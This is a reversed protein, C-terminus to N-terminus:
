GKKLTNIETQMTDIKASLEQVAKILPIVFKAYQLRRIGSINEYGSFTTGLEDAAQKVGQASLGDIVTDNLINSPNLVNFDAPWDETAKDKYKVPRLKNIFTLGLDTNTINRKIREDSTASWTNGSSSFDLSASNTEDGIYAHYNAAGLVGKGIVICRTRSSLTVGSFNGICINGNGTLLDQGTSHTTFSAGAGLGLLLNGSGSTVNYGTRYGIATNFSGTTGTGTDTADELSETGIAINQKAFGSDGYKNGANVGIAINDEGADSNGIGICVSRTGDGTLAITGNLLIDDVTLVGTTSINVKKTTSTGISTTGDSAVRFATETTSDRGIRLTKGLKSVNAYDNIVELGNEPTIKIHDATGGLIFEDGVGGSSTSAQLNIGYWQGGAKAYLKPSGDVMQVRIDGEDGGHPRGIGVGLDTNRKLHGGAGRIIDGRTSM